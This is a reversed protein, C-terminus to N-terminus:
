MMIMVMGIIMMMIMMMMLWEAGKNFCEGMGVVEECVIGLQVVGRRGGINWSQNVVHGTRDRGNCVPHAIIFQLHVIVFCLEDRNTCPRLESLRGRKAHGYRIMTDTERARYSIKADM